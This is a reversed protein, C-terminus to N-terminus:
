LLMPPTTPILFEQLCALRKLVTLRPEYQLFKCSKGGDVHIWADYKDCLERLRRVEQSSHTAFLGTNVEGCSVVVICATGKQKMHDELKEMDFELSQRGTSVDIVSSRGLGAVSAAKWISSHPMTTLVKFQTIRAALCAQLIGDEGITPANPTDSRARM